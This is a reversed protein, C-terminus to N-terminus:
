CCCAQRSTIFDSFDGLFWLDSRGVLLFDRGFQRHTGKLAVSVQAPPVSRVPRELLGQSPASVSGASAPAAAAACRGMAPSVATWRRPATATTGSTGPTASVSGATVSGTVQLHSCLLPTLLIRPWWSTSHNPLVLLGALLAALSVKSPLAVFLHQHSVDLYM